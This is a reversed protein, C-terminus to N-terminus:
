RLTALYAVMDRAHAETVGLDPMATRPKLAQPHRIFAMLNAATNNLEGAIFVRSALGDLPPGAYAPPGSVGPIAHCQNCAYQHLAEKGRAPDPSGAPADPPAAAATGHQQVLARYDSPSLEPLRRLFAVVAWLDADAMRYQWAPMATMKIGHRVVWYLEAPQWERATQALPPAGPELGKAFDAPAVGPGGHCEVCYSQFLQLGRTIKADDSLDPVAIDRARRSISRLATIQLLWYMPQWHARTAAVNYAGSYVFVAAGILGAVAIAAITILVTGIVRRARRGAVERGAKEGADQMVRDLGHADTLLLPQAARFTGTVRQAAARWGM